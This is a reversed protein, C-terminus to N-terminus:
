ERNLWREIELYVQQVPIDKEAAIRKCDEWEPKRRILMDRYRAEKVRVKGAPTDCERITRELMEKEVPYHRIGLTTTETFLIDKMSYLNERHCLVSIKVAPRGKKMILHTLSVDDAGARFLKDMVLEYQEPNMDDINCEVMVPQATKEETEALYVRLVNPIELDHHGLGYGTKKITFSPHPPFRHALTTLIAAGTPTTTEAQVAGSTTPIDRVLEATAPAPVPMRGHACHVFGGGLEPPRSWVEDVDLLHFCIAAGVIDVLADTAGVEHFHVQEVTTGHVRAEARAIRQFIQLSLQKVPEAIKSKKIIHEIDSLHRHPHPHTQDRHQLKIEAKTGSIGMKKSNEFTLTYEDRINLLNLQDSIQGPSIGLDVMAGLNMDGSIGSFCDYYLIKM